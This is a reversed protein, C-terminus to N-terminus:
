PCACLEETTHDYYPPRVNGFRTRPQRLGPWTIPLPRLPAGDNLV